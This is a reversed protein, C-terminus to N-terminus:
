KRALPLYVFIGEGPPARTPVPGSPTTTASVATPVTTPTEEPPVIADGIELRVPWSLTTDVIEAGPMPEITGCAADRAGTRPNVTQIVIVHPTATLSQISVGRLTTTSKGDAFATLSHALETAGPCIGHRIEGTYNFGPWTGSIEVVVELDPGRETLRGAGNVRAEGQSRIYVTHRAVEPVGRPDREDSVLATFSGSGRLTARGIGDPFASVDNVALRALAGAPVRSAVKGAAANAADYLDVTLDLDRYDPNFVYLVSSQYDRAKRVTTASFATGLDAPGFANYAAVSDVKDALLQEDQVVALVPASASITASGVFGQDVGGGRPLSPPSVNSRGRPSLDLFAAGRPALRLAQHFSQNAGSPSFPAGRYDVIVTAATMSANAIAILSDGRYNARVLPLYQTAAGDSTPRALYASSGSTELEDGYALVAIPQGAHLWAHGLWGGTPANSGVARPGFTNDAHATDWNATEGPELTVETEAVYSGDKADFITMTVGNRDPGAGANQAFIYTTHSYVTRAILPLILDYAAPAAEYAVAAGSIWRLHAVGGMVEGASLRGAYFGGTAERIQSLDMRVTARAGLSRRINATEGGSKPWLNMQVSTAGDTLNQVDVVANGFGEQGQPAAFLAPEPRLEAQLDPVYLTTAGQRPAAASWTLPVALVAAALASLAVAGLIPMPSRPRLTPARRSTPSATLRAVSPRRVPPM